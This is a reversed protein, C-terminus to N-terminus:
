GLTSAVWMHFYDKCISLCGVCEFKNKVHGIPRWVASYTGVIFFVRFDIVCNPKISFSAFFSLYQISEM